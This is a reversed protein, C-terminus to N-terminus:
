LGQVTLTFSEVTLDDTDSLNQVRLDIVDGPSVDLAASVGVYGTVTTVERRSAASQRAGNVFIAFEYPVAGGSKFASLSAVALASIPDLGQFTLEGNGSMTFRDEHVASTTGAIRVYNSIASIVTPTANSEAFFSGINHSDSVGSNRFFEWKTDTHTLGDVPTGAGIFRCQSVNARSDAAPLNGSAIEGRLGVGGAAASFTIANLRIVSWTSSNFDLCADAAGGISQVIAAGDIVFNLGDGTVRLGQAFGGLQLSNLSIRQGAINGVNGGNSLLKSDDLRVRELSDDVFQWVAGSPALQEITLNQLQLSGKGTGVNLLPLGPTNGVLADSERNNGYLVTNEAVAISVGASLSVVGVFKYAVDSM